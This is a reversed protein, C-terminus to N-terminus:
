QGGVPFAEETFGLESRHAKQNARETAMQSTEVTGALNSPAQRVKHMVRTQIHQEEVAPFWQFFVEKGTERYKNVATKFMAEKGGGRGPEMNEWAKTTTLWDLMEGLTMADKPRAEGPALASAVELTVKQRAKLPIPDPQGPQWQSLLKAQENNMAAAVEYAEHQKSTLRLPELGKNTEIDQPSLPKGGLKESAPMAAHDLTMPVASLLMDNDQIARDAPGQESYQYKGRLIGRVLPKVYDPGFGLGFQTPEGNLSRHRAVRGSEAFTANYWQDVLDKAARTEPDTINNWMRASWTGVPEPKGTLALNVAPGALPGGVGVVINKYLYKELSSTIQSGFETGRGPQLADLLETINKAATQSFINKQIGFFLAAALRRGDEDKLEGMLQSVDTVLGIMPGIPDIMYPVWWNTGPVRVTYEPHEKLWAQRQPDNATPARGVINGEAAYAAIGAMFLSGVVLKGLALDAERGGAAIAQYFRPQTAALISNDIAWKAGNVPIKIFPLLLRMIPFKDYGLNAVSAFVQGAGRPDIPDQLTQQISFDLSGQNVREAVNPDAMVRRYAEQSPLVGDGQAWAEAHALAQRDISFNWSKYFEDVTNLLRHTMRGGVGALGMYNAWFDIVKATPGHPDIAGGVLASVNEGTVAKPYADTKGVEGFASEGTAWNKGAVRFHELTGHTLGWLMALTEGPVVGPEPTGGMAGSVGRRVLGVGEAALRVPFAWATTVLNGAANGVQTPPGLLAATYQEILMDALGPRAQGMNAQVLKMAGEGGLETARAMESPEASKPVDLMLPTEGPETARYTSFRRAAAKAAEQEAPSLKAWADEGRKWAANLQESTLLPIQEQTPDHMPSLPDNAFQQRFKEAEPTQGSEAYLKALFGERAVYQAHMEAPDLLAGHGEPLGPGYRNVLDIQQPSFTGTLLSGQTPAGLRWSMDRDFAQRIGERVAPWDTPPIEQELRNYLEQQFQQQTPEHDFAHQLGERVASWDVQPLEQALRNYLAQQMQQPFPAHEFSARAQALEEPTRQRWQERFAELTAKDRAAREQETAVREGPTAIALDKRAMNLPTMEPQTLMAEHLEQLYRTHPAIPQNMMSLTRGTEARVGLFQPTLSGFYSKIELYDQVEPSGPRGGSEVVKQAAQQLKDGLASVSLVVQSVGTDDMVTGPIIERVDELTWGGADLIGQAEALVEAHPRVGRTQEVTRAELTRIVEHAAQYAAQVAPNDIRPVRGTAYVSYMQHQQIVSRTLADTLATKDASAIFGQEQAREAMHQLSLGSVDNQLGKIKTEAYSILAKLEGPVDTESKLKIGGQQRIFDQLELEQPPMDKLPIRWRGQPDRFKDVPLGEAGEELTPRRGAPPEQQPQPPVTEAPPPQPPAEEQTIRDLAEQAQRTQERAHELAAEPNDFGMREAEQQARDGGEELVLEAQQARQWRRRADTRRPSISGREGGLTQDLLGGTKGMGPEPLMDLLAKAWRQWTPLDVGGEPTMPSLAAHVAKEVTFGPEAALPKLAEPVPLAGPEQSLGTGPARQYIAGLSGAIASQVLAAELQDKLRYPQAIRNGRKEWGQKQLAEGHPSDAPVWFERRNVDYQIAGQAGASIVNTVVSALGPPVAENFVGLASGVSALLTNTIFAHTARKAAEAEGILPKMAEYASGAAVAGQMVGSVGIGFAGAIQPANHAIGSVVAHTGMSVGGFVALQGFTEAATDLLNHEPGASDIRSTIYYNLDQATATAINGVGTSLGATKELPAVAQLGSEVVGLASQAVRAPARGLFPQGLGPEIPKRAPTWPEPVYHGGFPTAAMAQDVSGVEPMPALSPPGAGAGASTYPQQRAAQELTAVDPMPATLRPDLAMSPPGSPGARSEYQDLSTIDPTATGTPAIPQNLLVQVQSPDIQALTKNVRQVYEQTEPYPPVTNGYKQVAGEGANYAAMQLDRRGPFLQQLDALYKLGGRINQEVDWPNSVGYRQATKDMLQMVGKADASSKAQPNFNSEVQAIATAFTPDVGYQPALHAILRKVGDPGVPLPKSAADLARHWYAEDQRRQEDMIARGTPDEFTPRWMPGTTTAM